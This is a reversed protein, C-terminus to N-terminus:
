KIYYAANISPTQKTNNKGTARSLRKTRTATIQLIANSIKQIAACCVEKKREKKSCCHLQGDVRLHLM